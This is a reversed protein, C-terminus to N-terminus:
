LTSNFVSARSVPSLDSPLPSAFRLAASPVMNSRGDSAARDAVVVVSSFSAVSAGAVVVKILGILAVIRAGTDDVDSMVSGASIVGVDVNIAGVVVKTAGMDLVVNDVVLVASIDGVVVKTAGMVVVVNIAGVVVKIAGVVVSMAGVVVNIAGVVVMLDVVMRNFHCRRLLCGMFVANVVVRATAPVRNAVAM